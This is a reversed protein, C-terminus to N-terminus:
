ALVVDWPVMYAIIATSIIFYILITRNKKAFDSKKKAFFIGMSVLGIAIFMMLPHEMGYFRLSESKMFGSEYQVKPSIFMLTAGLLFQLYMLYKTVTFLSKSFFSKKTIIAVLSVIISIALMTLVLWMFGSHSNQIISYM